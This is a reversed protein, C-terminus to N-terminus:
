SHPYRFSERDIIRRMEELRKRDPAFITMEVMVTSFVLGVHWGAFAASMFNHSLSYFWVNMAAFSLNLALVMWSSLSIGAFSKM